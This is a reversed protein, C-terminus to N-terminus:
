MVCFKGSTVIKQFNTNDLLQWTKCMIQLNALEIGSSYIDYLIFLVTCFCSQRLLVATVSADIPMQLIKIGRAYTLYFDVFIWPLYEITENEFELKMNTESSFITKCLMVGDLTECHRRRWRWTVECQTIVAYCCVFCNYWKKSFLNLFALCALEASMLQLHSSFVVDRFDVTVESCLFLRNM